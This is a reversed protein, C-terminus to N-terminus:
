NLWFASWKGDVVMTLWQSYKWKARPLSRVNYQTSHNKNKNNIKINNNLHTDLHSDCRELAIFYRGVSLLSSNAHIKYEINNNKKCFGSTHFHQERIVMTIVTIINECNICGVILPLIDDNSMTENTIPATQWCPVWKTTVVNDPRNMTIVVNRAVRAMNVDYEALM